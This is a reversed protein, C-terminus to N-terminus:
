LIPVTGVSLLHMQELSVPFLNLDTEYAAWSLTFLYFSIKFTQIQNSRAVFRFDSMQKIFDKNHKM